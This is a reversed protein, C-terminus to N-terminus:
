HNEYHHKHFSHPCRIFMVTCNYIPFQLSVNQITTHKWSQLLLRSVSLYIFPHKVLELPMPM